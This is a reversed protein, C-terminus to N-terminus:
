RQAPQVRTVFPMTDITGGAELKMPTQEQGKTEQSRKIVRDRLYEFAERLTMQGKNKKETGDRLAELLYYTFISHRFGDDEFSPQAETSSFMGFVGKFNGWLQALGFKMGPATLSKIGAGAGSFCADMFFVKRDASLGRVREIWRQQPLLTSQYKMDADVPVFYARDPYKRLDPDFFGHGSFYLIVTDNPGVTEDLDDFATNINRLTAESDILLKINEASVGVVDVLYDRVAKADQDAYNLRAFKSAASYSKIGIILAHIRGKYAVVDLIRTNCRGDSDWAIIRVANNGEALTVVDDSERLTSLVIRAKRQSPTGTPDIQLEPTKKQTGIEVRIRNPKATIGDLMLTLEGEGKIRDPGQVFIAPTPAPNRCDSEDAGASAAPWGLASVAVAVVCALKRVAIM